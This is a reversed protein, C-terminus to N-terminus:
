PRRAATVDRWRTPFLTPPTSSSLDSRAAYYAFVDHLNVDQFVMGDDPSSRALVFSAAARLDQKPHRSQHLGTAWGAVALILATAVIALRRGRIRCLGVASLLALPPVSVILYRDVFMPQVFQRQPTPRRPLVPM